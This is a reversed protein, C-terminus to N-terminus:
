GHACHYMAMAAAQVVNLSEKSGLMPIEVIEDCAAIVEPEIGETERGLILALKQPAKYAPLPISGPAQELGVISYGQAKLEALVPAITDSQQWSQSTEAGLATKSIQKHLKDAIYPLRNDNLRKPHPTYGTLYVCAVGMGDATRLLSGVNHCSRLNHAIIVLSKM